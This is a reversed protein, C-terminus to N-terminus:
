RRSLRRSSINALFILGFWQQLFYVSLMAEIPFPKLDTTKLPAHPAILALLEQWPVVREM